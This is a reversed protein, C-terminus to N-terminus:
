AFFEEYMTEVFAVGGAVFDSRDGKPALGAFMTNIQSPTNRKLYSNENFHYLFRQGFNGNKNFTPRSLQTEDNTDIIRWAPERYEFKSRKSSTNKGPTVCKWLVGATDKYTYCGLKGDYTVDTAPKTPTKFTGQVEGTLIGSSEYRKVATYKGGKINNNTGELRAKDDPSVYKYELQQKRRSSVPCNIVDLETIPRNNNMIKIMKATEKVLAPTIEDYGEDQLLKKAYDEYSSYKGKSQEDYYVDDLSWVKDKIERWSENGKAVETNKDVDWADPHKATVQEAQQESIVVDKGAIWNQKAKSSLRVGTRQEFQAPTEGAKVTLVRQGQKNFRINHEGGNSDVAIEQTIQGHSNYNTMVRVNNSLSKVQSSVHGGDESYKRVIYTGNDKDNIEEYVKIGTINDNKIEFNKYVEVTTKNGVKKGAMVTGNENDFKFDTTETYAGKDVTRSKLIENEKEDYEYHTNATGRRVDKTSKVGNEYNTVAVSNDQKNTDVVKTLTNGDEAFDSVITNTDSDVITQAITNDARKETITTTGESDTTTYTSSKDDYVAETDGNNYSILTAYKGNINEKVASSIDDASGDNSYSQLFELIDNENLKKTKGNEDQYKLGDKGGFAAKTEKWTVKGDNNGKAGEDADKQLNQLEESDVVGDKNKDLREFISKQAASMNDTKKLGGQKSLSNLDIGHKKLLNIDFNFASM